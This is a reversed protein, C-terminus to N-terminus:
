GGGASRSSGSDEELALAFTFVAGGSDRTRARLCGGHAEIISLSISLGLGMGDPKTSQFPEFLRAEYGAPIGPGDDEVSVEATNRIRSTRVIVEGEGSSAASAEFANLLLNVLVQQIQVRDGRVLASAPELDLRLTVHHALADGRLLHSVDEVLDNIEFSALKSEGKRLMGRIRAIVDGARQDDEVIDTLIEILEERSASGEEVRVLATEANAMIAGLPQHLEHALSSALVGVTSVRLSHALEDRTRRADTEASDRALANALVAAALKLRQALDGSHRPPSATTVTLDGLVRDNVLLPETLRSETRHTDEARDGSATIRSASWSRELGGGQKGAEVTFLLVRDVHLSEGLRALASELAAGLRDKGVNVFARSIESLMREFHLNERLASEVRRKEEVLGALFTLPIGVVLLFVQLGFPSDAATLTGLPHQVRTAAWSALLVTALLSLSAGATGFRVAAWLLLPLLFSLSTYPAGPLALESESGTFVVTGVAVLALALAAAEAMRRLPASHIWAWAMTAVCVTAPVVTLGALANSPLRRGWVTWFPEGRFVAVSAADAFTTVFPAVVVAGAVLAVVRLLSDFRAPADSLRRIVSAALIGESCNTVFLALVLTIPLGAQIQVLLHAPLVLALCIWWRHPPLILLAATLISNPPWLVSTTAAPFRLSFGILCALYYALAVIAPGTLAADLLNRPRTRDRAGVDVAVADM